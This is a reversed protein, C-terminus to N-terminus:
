MYMLAELFGFSNIGVYGGSWKTCESVVRLRGDTLGDISANPEQFHLNAPIYGEEMSILVKALAALGSAPEPHGMNSKTSGVLLPGQRGKCCFVEVISNLEQPDGAKTGTGHAEVYAVQAPDVGCETYVEKLLKKQVEGSPFTIGQQKNGDCNNKSHVLTAYIRRACKAKQIYIAVVAESRCYGNGSADFSKCAGDPSLMGLKQFQLTTGPNLCLSSGGVIAADCQGSRIARLAQDLALLSSSCATDIAFSPGKFDFFYSLRNAFMSRTCGTMEYGVINEINATWADHSESASCGIFVGTKSGRLMKPNIGADVIAEHTVELLMRLQPDMSNAQKPHVGFFSADFKSIDKLKGSRKPLGHLGPTWRREDETVMDEGKMLHERFEAINDSEPLRGSIGSVVVEDPSTESIIVQDEGGLPMGDLFKAPM